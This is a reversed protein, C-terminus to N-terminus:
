RVGGGLAKYLAILQVTIEGECRAFADELTLLSREADLVNNFDALGNQYLDRSIAVADSAAKVADRLAAFRHQAQTYAMHAVRTESLAQQVASEYGYVAERMKSEEVRLNAIINGGQFLPWSVAPGISAALSGPQFFKAFKVSELGLTGNIFFRPYMMSKAIGVRATQALLRREAARVDPRRRLADLPFEAVRAPALVWDRDPCAGLTAHLAGPMTGSLVALANLCNEEEILLLPIAARTQELIYRAQQVALEDGIGSDLRSKLIDYTEAQLVLNTRAVAIRRQTTRLDVYTSGIEATLSVWADALTWDAAEAMAQAAQVERRRGGFVDIEWSADFGGRFLDSHTARRGLNEYPSVGAANNRHTETATASGVAAVHPYLAAGSGIYQWRAQVLREQAALFSLNNSVATSVLDDLLPDKFAKWWGKIDDATLVVRPDDNTEASAYEAAATFRNTVPYGADPLAVDYAPLEPEEYDPGVTLWSPVLADPLSCGALPLVALATFRAFRNINM